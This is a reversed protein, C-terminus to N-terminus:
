ERGDDSMGTRGTRGSTGGTGVDRGDGSVYGERNALWFPLMRAELGEQDHEYDITLARSGPHTHLEAVPHEIVGIIAEAVEAASLLPLSPPPSIGRERAIEAGRTAEYAFLDTMPGGTTSEAWATMTGAPVVVTAVIGSGALEARLARTFGVTAHKAAVYVANGPYGIKGAISSINIIHGRGRPRMHRLAATVGYWLSFVNLAFIDEIQADPTDEIYANQGRGANNVLVDLAGFASITEEVAREFAVRDTVDCEIPLATGGDRAIQAAIERLREGRRAVLAVRAGRVALGRALAEGIGSSAGTVLVVLDPTIEMAEDNRVADAAKMDTRDIPSENAEVNRIRSRSYDRFKNNSLNSGAEASPKLAM